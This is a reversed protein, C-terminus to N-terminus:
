RDCCVTSLELMQRHKCKAESSLGFDSSNRDSRLQRHGMGKGARGLSIHLNKQIEDNQQQKETHRPRHKSTSLISVHNEGSQCIMRPSAVAIAWRLRACYGHMINPIRSYRRLSSFLSSSTLGCNRGLGSERAACKSFAALRM